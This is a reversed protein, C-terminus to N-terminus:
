RSRSRAHATQDPPVARGRLGSPRGVRQGPGLEAGDDIDGRDPEHQTHRASWPGALEVVSAASVESTSSWLRAAWTIVSSLIRDLVPNWAVASQMMGGALSSPWCTGVNVSPRATARASGRPARRSGARRAARYLLGDSRAGRQGGSSVPWGRARWREMRRHPPRPRSRTSCSDVENKGVPWCRCVGHHCSAATHQAGTILGLNGTAPAAITAAANEPRRSDHRRVPATERFEDRCPAVRWVSGSRM